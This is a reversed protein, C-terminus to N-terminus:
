QMKWEPSIDPSIVILARNEDKDGNRLVRLRVHVHQDPTKCVPKKMSPSNPVLLGEIPWDFDKLFFHCFFQYYILLNVELYSFLYCM